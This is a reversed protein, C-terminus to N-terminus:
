GHFRFYSFCVTIQKKTDSEYIFLAIVFRKKMRRNQIRLQIHFSRIICLNKLFGACNNQRRNQLPTIPIFHNANTIVLVIRLVLLWSTHSLSPHDYM